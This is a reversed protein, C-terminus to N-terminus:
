ALSKGKKTIPRGSRWQELRQALKEAVGADTIGDALTIKKGFTTEGRVRYYAADNSRMTFNHAFGVFHRPAYSQRSSYLPGVTTLVRMEDAAIEVRRRHLMTWAGGALILPSSIGWILLFVGPADGLLMIVFAVAWISGFLLLFLGLVRFRGAPCDIFTPVGEPDFETIVGHAKLRDQLRTASPAGAEDDDDEAALLEREEETIFVPLPLTVPKGGRAPRVELSWVHREDEDLVFTEEEVVACPLGQPIELRLPLAVGNAERRAEAASLTETHEWITKKSVVTSRGRQTTTNQQCLVRVQLTTLPSLARDFRLEGELAQGPTIPTTQLWLVPRGLRLRTRVQQWVLFLPILALAAPLVALAAGPTSRLEGTVILAIVLPGQVLLIWGTVALLFGWGGKKPQIANGEWEQKWLWPAEPHREALRARRRAELTRLGGHASVLGGILPFLTPFLSIMLILGWRLERFLVAQKPDVYCRFPRERGEYARLQAYARQQFDGINDSGGDGLSVQTSHYTRGEYEYRYSAETQYTTSDSGTSAQLKTSEVWCPVEEWDRAAWWGQMMPLYVFWGIALGAVLFPLGFLLACGGNLQKVPSSAASPM